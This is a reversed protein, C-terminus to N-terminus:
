MNQFMLSSFAVAGSVGMKKTMKKLKRESWRLASKLKRKSTRMYKLNYDGKGDVITIGNGSEIAKKMTESVSASMGTRFGVFHRKSM